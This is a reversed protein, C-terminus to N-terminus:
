TQAIEQLWLTRALAISVLIHHDFGLYVDSTGALQVLM